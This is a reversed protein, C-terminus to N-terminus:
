NPKPCIKHTVVVMPLCQSHGRRSFQRVVWVHCPSDFEREFLASVILPRPGFQDIHEGGLSEPNVSSLISTNSRAEMVKSFVKQWDHKGLEQLLSIANNRREQTPLSLAAVGIKLRQISQYALPPVSAAVPDNAVRWLTQQIQTSSTQNLLPIRIFHTLNFRRKYNSPVLGPRRAYNPKAMGM